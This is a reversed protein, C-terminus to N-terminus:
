INLPIDAPCAAWDYGGVWPGGIAGSNDEDVESIMQFVDADSVKIQMHELVQKLEFQLIYIHLKCNLPRDNYNVCSQWSGFCM